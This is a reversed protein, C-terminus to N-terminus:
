HEPDGCRRCTGGPGVKCWWGPRPWPVAWATRPLASTTGLMRQVPTCSGCSAAPSSRRMLEQTQISLTLALIQPPPHQFCRSPHPKLHDTPNEPTESPLLSSWTEPGPQSTPDRGPHPHPRRSLFSSWRAKGAPRQSIEGEPISLGEKQWIVMPQPIGSAECPLLVEESAVVQVMSPLPKVVPSAAPVSSLPGEM